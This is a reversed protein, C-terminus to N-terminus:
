RRDYWLRQHTGPAGQGGVVMGFTDAVTGGSMRLTGKSITELATITLTTSPGIELVQNANNMRINFASTVGGSLDLKLTSGLTTSVDFDLVVGSAISGTGTIDLVGNNSAVVTGLGTIAGNSVLVGNGNIKSDGDISISNNVTLVAPQTVTLTTGQNGKHNGAMTLSGVTLTVDETVVFALAQTTNGIFIQDGTLPASPSWRAAVSWDDSVASTWTKVAMNTGGKNARKLRLTM